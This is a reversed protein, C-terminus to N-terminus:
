LLAFDILEKYFDKIANSFEKRLISKFLPDRKEFPITEVGSYIDKPRKQKIFSSFPVSLNKYLARWDIIENESNKSINYGIKDTFELSM